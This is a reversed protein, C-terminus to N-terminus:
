HTGTNLKCTNPIKKCKHENSFSDITKKKKHTFTDQDPKILAISAKYSSNPPAKEKKQKITSLKLLIPKLEKFTQYFGETFSHIWRAKKKKLNSPRKKSEKEEM